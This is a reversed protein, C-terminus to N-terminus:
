TFHCVYLGINLSTEIIDCYQIFNLFLKMKMQFNSLNQNIQLLKSFSVKHPGYDFNGEEFKQSLVCIFQMNPRKKIATIIEHNEKLDLRLLFSYFCTM